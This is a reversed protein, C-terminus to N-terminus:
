FLDCGLGLHFQVEMFADGTRRNSKIVSEEKFGCHKVPAEMVANIENQKQKYKNIYRQSCYIYKEVASTM